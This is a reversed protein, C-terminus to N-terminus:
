RGIVEKKLTVLVWSAIVMLVGAALGILWVPTWRSYDGAVAGVLCLVGLLVGGLGLALTRHNEAGTIGEGSVQASGEGSTGRQRQVVQGSM